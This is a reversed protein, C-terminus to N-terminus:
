GTRTCDTCLVSCVCTRLGPMTQSRQSWVREMPVLDPIDRSQRHMVASCTCWCTHNNRWWDKRLGAGVSPRSSQTHCRSETPRLDVPAAVPLLAEAALSCLPPTSPDFWRRQLREGGRGQSADGDRSNPSLEPCGRGWDQTNRRLETSFKQGLTRAHHRTHTAYARLATCCGAGGDATEGGKFPGPLRHPELVDMQREPESAAASGSPLATACSFFSFLPSALPSRHVTELARQATRSALLRCDRAILRHFRM